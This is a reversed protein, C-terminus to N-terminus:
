FECLDGQRQLMKYEIKHLIFPLPRRNSEDFLLM